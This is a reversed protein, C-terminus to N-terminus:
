KQKAAPLFQHNASSWRWIHKGSWTDSYATVQIYVRENYRWQLPYMGTSHDHFFVLKLPVKGLELEATIVSFFAQWTREPCSRDHVGACPDLPYVKDSFHYLMNHQPTKNRYYAKGIHSHLPQRIISRVGLVHFVGTRGSPPPFRFVRYCLVNRLLARLLTILWLQRFYIPFGYGGRFYILMSIIPMIQINNLM